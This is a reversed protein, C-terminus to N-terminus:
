KGERSDYRDAHVSHWDPHKPDSRDYGDPDVPPVYSASAARMEDQWVAIRKAGELIEDTVAHINVVYVGRDTSIRLEYGDEDSDVTIEDARGLSRTVDPGERNFMLDDPIEQVRHSSTVNLANFIAEHAQKCAEDVRGGEWTLPPKANRLITRAENLTRIQDVTFM